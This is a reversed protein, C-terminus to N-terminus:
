RRHKTADALTFTRAKGRYPPVREGKTLTIEYKTGTLYLHNKIHVWHDAIFNSISIHNRLSPVGLAKIVYKNKPFYLFTPGEASSLVSGFKKLKNFADKKGLNKSQYFDTPLYQNEPFYGYKFLFRRVSDPKLNDLRSNVERFRKRRIRNLTSM